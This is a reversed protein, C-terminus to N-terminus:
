IFVGSRLNQYPDTLDTVGISESLWEANIKNVQYVRLLNREHGGYILKRGTHRGARYPVSSRVGQLRYDPSM